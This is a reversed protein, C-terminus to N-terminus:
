NDCLEGWEKMLKISFDSGLLRQRIIKARHPLLFLDKSLILIRRFFTDKQCRRWHDCLTSWTRQVEFYGEEIMRKELWRLFFQYIEDSQQVPDPKGAQVLLFSIMAAYSTIACKEDKATISDSHKRLKILPEALCEIAGVRSLRLWLDKDQARYIRPRYGGIRRVSEAKYLASSHPFPSGGKILHRIFPKGSLYKYSKIERGKQDIVICGSGLLVANPLNQVYKIQKELRFPLSIDDADHRAIWKGKAMRIGENLSNALGTNNKEIVVIRNDKKAYRKIIELTDDKSGDDILIFEFDNFSQSLISEIAESLYVSANYCSTLVSILPKTKM